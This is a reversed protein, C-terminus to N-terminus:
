PATLASERPPLPHLGLRALELAALAPITEPDARRWAAAPTETITRLRHPPANTLARLALLDPDATRLAAAEGAARAYRLRVPLWLVLPVLIGLLVAVMASNTAVTSVLDLQEQGAGSLSRGASEGSRLAGALTDGIFPVMAAGQAAIGFADGIAAGADVLGTAPARLRLLQDRIHLGVLCFTLLWALALLDAVLQRALRAPHEAYFKM